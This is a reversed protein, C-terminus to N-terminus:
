LWFDPKYNGTLVLFFLVVVNFIVGFVGKLSVYFMISSPTRRISEDIQAIVSRAEARNEIELLTM